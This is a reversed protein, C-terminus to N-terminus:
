EHAGGDAALGSGNFRTLEERPPTGLTVLDITLVLGMGPCYYKNEAKGPELRTFDKTKLCHDFHGYTVDVSEDLALVEAEDEASNALYEQRYSDGVMPHARMVIGPKACDVGALWSGRASVNPGSYEKTDEGFYWVNGDRDQAFYDWTDELIVGETTTAYDHVVVCIVGAVMKTESTVITQGVNGDSDVFTYATGPLLPYLPNDVTTSFSAPDIAPNYDAAPCAAGSDPSADSSSSSCSAAMTLVFLAFIRLSRKAHM